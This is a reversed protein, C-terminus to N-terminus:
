MKGNAVLFAVTPHESGGAPEITINLSEADAIVQIPQLDNSDTQLLGANIMVGEVDAWIQYQKGPPPTPMNVMNLMASQTAENWYVVVHAEPSIDTGTLHVVQTADENVFAVVQRNRQEQKQLQDCQRVLTAYQSALYNYDKELSQTRWWSWGGVAVSLLLIAVSAYLLYRGGNSGNRNTKRLRGQEEAEIGSLIKDKLEQSPPVAYQAAYQEIANRLADIEAQVDPHAEAYREVERTEELTTLGLVYQEILGSALFREKNM